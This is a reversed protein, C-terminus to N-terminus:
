LVISPYTSDCEKINNEDTGPRLIVVFRLTATNEVDVYCPYYTRYTTVGNNTGYATPVKKVADTLSVVSAKNNLSTEKFGNENDPTPKYNYGLIKCVNRVVTEDSYIRYLNSDIKAEQGVPPKLPQAHLNLVHKSSLMTPQSSVVGGKNKNFGSTRYTNDGFPDV